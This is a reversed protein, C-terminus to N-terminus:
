PPREPLGPQDRDRPEDAGTWSLSSDYTPVKGVEDDM